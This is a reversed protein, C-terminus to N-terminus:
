AATRGHLPAAVDSPTASYALRYLGAVSGPAAGADV